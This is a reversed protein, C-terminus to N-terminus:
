RLLKPLLLKLELDSDSVIIKKWDQMAIRKYFSHRDFFFHFFTTIRLFTDRGVKMVKKQSQLWGDEGFFQCRQVAAEAGWDRHRASRPPPVPRPSPAPPSISTGAGNAATSGTSAVPRPTAVSAPGMASAASTASGPVPTAASPPTAASDKSDQCSNHFPSIQMWSPM